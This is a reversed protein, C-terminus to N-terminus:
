ALIIYRTRIDHISIMNKAFLRYYHRAAKCIDSYTQEFNGTYWRESIDRPSETYDLLRQIKNESDAGIIRHMNVINRQDMAIINDYELYDGKTMQVARKGEAKIGLRALISRTGPHIPNEIEETSTATSAIDFCNLLGQKKVMDKFVFEAM